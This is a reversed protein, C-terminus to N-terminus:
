DLDAWSVAVLGLSVGNALVAACQGSGPTPQPATGSGVLTMRVSGTADTVAKFSLTPCFPTVGAQYTDASLRAGQFECNLIRFEITAGAIPAGSATRAVVTFAGMATDALAGLRGVMMVHSPITSQAPSVTQAAALGPVLLSLLVLTWIRM